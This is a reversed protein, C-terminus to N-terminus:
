RRKTALVVFGVLVAFGVMAWQLLYALVLAIGEFGGRSPTTKTAAAWIGTLALLGLVPLLAVQVTRDRRALLGIGAMAMYPLAALLFIPADHFLGNHVARAHSWAAMLLAAEVVFAVASAVPALLSPGVAPTRFDDRYDEYLDSSSDYVM